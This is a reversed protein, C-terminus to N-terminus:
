KSLDLSDVDDGYVYTFDYYKASLQMANLGIYTATDTKIGFDTEESLTGSYVPEEGDNIYVYFNGEDRLVALKIGTREIGSLSVRDYDWAANSDSTNRHVELYDVNGMGTAHLYIGLQATVADNGDVGLLSLGIRNDGATATSTFDIYTEAYVKTSKEAFYLYGHDSSKAAKIDVKLNAENGDSVVTQSTVYNSSSAMGALSMTEGIQPLGYETFTTETSKSYLSVTVADTAEFGEYTMATGQLVDNVYVYFTGGVKAVGLKLGTTTITSLLNTDSTYTTSTGAGNMQSMVASVSPTTSDTNKSFAAFFDVYNDGCTFRLGVRPWVGSKVESTQIMTEVYVDATGVENLVLTQNGNSMASTVTELVIANQEADYRGTYSWDTANLATPCNDGAKADFDTFTSETGKSYLSATVVEDAGFGDYTTTGVLVDDAFFYLTGDIKAVALKVGTTTLAEQLDSNLTYSVKTNGIDAGSANTQTAFFSDYTPTVNKKFAVVYDVNTGASNTLRLGVRPWVGTSAETAKVVTEAYVDAAATANLVMIDTTTAVNSVYGETVKYDVFKTITSKSFFKASVKDNEGFGEYSATGQLEDNIYFFLIDGQKAIALKMDEDAAISAKLESNVYDYKPYVTTAYDNSSTNTRVVLLNALAPTAGKQYCLVFDVNEGAENTLRLGARPWVGTGAEITNVIAEFYMNEASTETITMVQNSTTSTSNVGLTIVNNTKDFKTNWEYNSINEQVTLPEYTELTPFEEKMNISYDTFTAQSKWGTLGVMSNGTIPYEVNSLDIVQQVEDDLLIYLENNERLVALKHAGTLSVTSTYECVKGTPYSDSKNDMLDGTMSYANLSTMESATGNLLVFFRNDGQTLVMGAASGTANSGTIKVTTEAYFKKASVDHWNVISSAAWTGTENTTVQDAVNLLDFYIKSKNDDAEFTDDVEEMPTEINKTWVSYDSFYSTTVKSYLKATVKADEGFDDYQKTAILADNAYLYITDGKKAMALKIGETTLTDLASTITYSQKTGSVDGSANTQIVFIESFTPTANKAYALVFDVNTGDENTLRLGVRPWASTSPEVTKVTTEIYVDKSSTANLTYADTSKAVDTRLAYSYDTFTAQAKSGALGVLTADTIAYSQASLDITKQKVDDLYVSLTDGNREVALKYKTKTTDSFKASWEKTRNDFDDNQMSHYGLYTVGSADGYLMVFYRNSGSTLVIGAEAPSTANSAQLNITTEVYFNESAPKNWNVISGNWASENTTINAAGSNEELIDFNITSKNADAVFTDDMEATAVSIGEAIASYNSFNSTTYKSYLSATVATDVGFEDYTKTGQLVNNVYFYFTDGIKAISIKIGDTCETGLASTIAYGQQSESGGSPKMAVLANQLTQSDTSNNYALIFDVTDGDSNTLRLGTRAWVGGKTEAVKVVTEAFIDTAATQNLTFLDTGISVDSAFTNLGTVKHIVAGTTEANNAGIYITNNYMSINEIECAADINTLEIVNIFNGDWDYMAIVNKKYTEESGASFLFYIYSDDTGIGQATYNSAGSFAEIDEGVPQFKSDLIRLKHSGSIGVVYQNRLSNYSINTMLSSTVIYESTYTNKVVSDQAVDADPDADSATFGAAEWDIAVNAPAVITLDDKDMFSVYYKSEGYNGCHAIVLLGTKTEGDKTYKLNPNYTIDNAHRLKLVESQYTTLDSALAWNGDESLAYKQIIVQHLNQNFEKKDANTEEDYNSYYYYSDTNKKMVAQYYYEGDWCGGQSSDINEADFPYTISGDATVAETTLTAVSPMYSMNVTKTASVGAVKTGDLTVWYPTAEIGTGFLRNPVGEVICAMFCKSAEDFVDPTYSKMVASDSGVAYMRYYVTTSECNYNVGGIVVDFGVSKYRTSDVTTVFRFDATKSTYNTGGTVQAKISLVGDPVFKAYATVGAAADGVVSSSLATKCEADTYWGAFVYNPHSPAKLKGTVRYSTIDSFEQSIVGNDLTQIDGDTASATLVSPTIMSLILLWAVLIKQIKKM